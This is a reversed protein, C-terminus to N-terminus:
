FHTASQRGLKDGTWRGGLHVHGSDDGIELLAVQPEGNELVTAVLFSKKGVKRLVAKGTLPPRDDSFKMTLKYADKGMPDLVLDGGYNAGNDEPLGPAYGYLDYGGALEVAFAPAVALAWVAASALLLRRMPSGKRFSCVVTM